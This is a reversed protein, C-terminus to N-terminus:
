ISIKALVRFKFQMALFRLFPSRTANRKDRECKDPERDWVPLLGAVGGGLLRGDPGALSM